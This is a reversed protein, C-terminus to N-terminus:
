FWELVLMCIYFLLFMSPYSIPRVEIKSGEQEFMDTVEEANFFGSFHM